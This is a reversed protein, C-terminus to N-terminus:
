QWDVSNGHLHFYNDVLLDLHSCCSYAFVDSAAISLLLLNSLLACRSASTVTSESARTTNSRQAGKLKHLQQLGSIKIRQAIM